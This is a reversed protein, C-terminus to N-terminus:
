KRLAERVRPLAQAARRECWELDDGPERDADGIDALAAEAFRLTDRVRELEARLIRMCEGAEHAGSLWHDDECRQGDAGAAVAQYIQVAAIRRQKEIQADTGSPANVIASLREVEARLGACEKKSSTWYACLDSIRILQSEGAEQLEAIRALLEAEGSKLADFEARTIHIREVEISNGSQWRGALQELQNM